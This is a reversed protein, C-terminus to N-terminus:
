WQLLWRARQISSKKHLHLREKGRCLWASTPSKKMRDPATSTNRWSEVPQWQTSAFAPSKISIGDLSRWAQRLRELSGITLRIIRIRFIPLKKLFSAPRSGVSELRHPRLIQRVEGSHAGPVAVPICCRFFVRGCACANIQAKSRSEVATRSRISLLCADSPRPLM